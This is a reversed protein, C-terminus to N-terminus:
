EILDSKSSVHDEGINVSVGSRRRKSQSASSRLEQGPNIGVMGHCSMLVTSVQEYYSRLHGSGGSKGAEGREQSLIIEPMKGSPAANDRLELCEGGEQRRCM